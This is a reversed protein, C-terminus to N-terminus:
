AGYYPNMRSCGLPHYQIWRRQKGECKARFTCVRWRKCLGGMLKYGYIHYEAPRYCPKQFCIRRCIKPQHSESKQQNSCVFRCSIGCACRIQRQSFVHFERPQCIPLFSAPAIEGDQNTFEIPVGTSAVTTRLICALQSFMILMPLSRLGAVSMRHSM